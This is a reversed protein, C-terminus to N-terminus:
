HDSYPAYPRRRRRYQIILSHYVIYPRRRLSQLSHHVILSPCVPRTEAVAGCVSPDISQGLRREVLIHICGDAPTSSFITSLKDSPNSLRQKPHDNLENRSIQGMVGAYANGSININVKYLKLTYADIEELLRAAWTKIEVKLQGVTQAGDIEVPFADADADADPNDQGLGLIACYLTYKM